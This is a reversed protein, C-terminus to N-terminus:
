GHCPLHGRNVLGLGQHRLRQGANGKYPIQLGPARRVFAKCPRNHARVGGAVLGIHANLLHPLAPALIKLFVVFLEAVRHVGNQGVGDGVAARGNHRHEM